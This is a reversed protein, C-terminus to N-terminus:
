ADIKKLSHTTIAKGLPRHLPRVPPAVVHAHPLQAFQIIAAPANDSLQNSDRAAHASSDPFSWPHLDIGIPRRHHATERQPLDSLADLLGAGSILSDGRFSDQPSAFSSVGPSYNVANSRRFEKPLSFRQREFPLQKGGLRALTPGTVRQQKAFSRAPPLVKPKAAAQAKTTTRSATTLM